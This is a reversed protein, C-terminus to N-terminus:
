LTPDPFLVIGSIIFGKQTPPKRISINFIVTFKLQMHGFM